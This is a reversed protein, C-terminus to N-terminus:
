SYFVYFSIIQISYEKFIVGFPVKYPKDITNSYICDSLEEETIKDISKNLISVLIPDTKNSVGIRMGYSTDLVSIVSLNESKGERLLEDFQYSSLVM